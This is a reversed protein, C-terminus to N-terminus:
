KPRDLQAAEARLRAATEQIRAKAERYHTRHNGVVNEGDFLARTEDFAIELPIRDRKNRDWCHLGTLLPLLRPFSPVDYRSQSGEHERKLFDQILPRTTADHSGAVLGRRFAYQYQFENLQRQWAFLDFEGALDVEIGFAKTGDVNYTTYRFSPHLHIPERLNLQFHELPVDDNQTYKRAVRLGKEIKVIVAPLDTRSLLDCVRYFRAVPIDLLHMRASFAARVSSLGKDIAELFEPKFGRTHLRTMPFGVQLTDWALDLLHEGHIQTDSFGFARWFAELEASLDRLAKMGQPDVVECARSVYELELANRVNRQIYSYLVDEYKPKTM